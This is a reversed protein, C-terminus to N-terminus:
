WQDFHVQDEERVTAYNDFKDPKLTSIMNEFSAFERHTGQFAPPLYPPKVAKELMKYWDVGDFIPHNKIETLGNKGSGLRQTGDLILFHSVLFFMKSPINEHLRLMQMVNTYAMPPGSEPM